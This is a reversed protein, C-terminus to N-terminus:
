PLFRYGTGHVTRIHRPRKPDDELKQRLLSVHVDVTRTIPPRDYDWVERLLRERSLVEGAHRVLYVLLELEKASLELTRGDRKVEGQAPDIHVSAFRLPGPASPEPVRRLLAEIRALLEAMEFPKTLYDDAGLRLGSVKDTLEGRATLMLIPTSDGAARLCRCLDLGTRGPLMWDLILLHFGGARAAQEGEDATSAAAVEHGEARLRDSLITVLAAEDEVLLIRSM